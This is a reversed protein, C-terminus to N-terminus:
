FTVDVAPWFRAWRCVHGNNLLNLGIPDVSLFWIIHDMDLWTSQFSEEDLWGSPLVRNPGCQRSSLEGSNDSHQSCSFIISSHYEALPGCRAWVDHPCWFFIQRFNLHQARELGLDENLCVLLEGSTKQWARQSYLIYMLVGVGGESFILRWLNM